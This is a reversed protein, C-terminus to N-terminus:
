PIYQYEESPNTTSSRLFLGISGELGTSDVCKLCRTWLSFKSNYLSSQELYYEDERWSGPVTIEM